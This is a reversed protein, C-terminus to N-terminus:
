RAGPIASQNKFGGDPIAQLGSLKEVDGANGNFRWAFIM